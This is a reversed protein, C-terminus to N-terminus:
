KLTVRIAWKNPSLFWSGIKTASSKQYKRYVRQLWQCSSSLCIPCSNHLRSMLLTSNSSPISGTDELMSWWDQSNAFLNQRNLHPSMLFFSIFHVEQASNTALLLKKLGVLQFKVLLLYTTLTLQLSSFLHCVYEM